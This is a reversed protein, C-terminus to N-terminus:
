SYRHLEIWAEETRFEGHSTRSVRLNRHKVANGSTLDYVYREGILIYGTGDSGPGIIFLVATGYLICLLDDQHMAKPGISIIRNSTTSRVRQSSSTATVDLSRQANGSKVRAELNWCRALYRLAM